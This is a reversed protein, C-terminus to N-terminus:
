FVIILMIYHVLVKMGGAVCINSEKYKKPMLKSQLELWNSRATSLSPIMDEELSRWIGERVSAQSFFSFVIVDDVFLRFWKQFVNMLCILSGCPLMHPKHKFISKLLEM